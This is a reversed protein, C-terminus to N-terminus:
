TSCAGTRCRAPTCSTRRRAPSPTRGTGNAPASGLSGFMGVVNGNLDLKYFKGAAGDASYLVQNPGPTICVSWPARVNTFQKTPNLDSDFVQVRQNGRDAVYINGQADATIGHPTSFQGVGNGKTGIAKVWDGDKTFKAVRSNGYGDSVFIDGAPDWTVDTPRNFSNPFGVPDTKGGEYALSTSARLELASPRGKHELFDEMYDIPEPKRGLVMLVQGDPAFKIVESSGEDVVWINQDKDIRVAHAFSEGYANAGIERVFKGTQDFEWLQAASAGRAPGANGTRTYVFIHKQANVAVGATEGLTKEMPTKMVLPVVDYPIQPWTKELAEQKALAAQQAPSPGQGQGLQRQAFMVVCLLTTLGIALRKM